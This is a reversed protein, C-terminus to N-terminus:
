KKQRIGDLIIAMIAKTQTLWEGNPKVSCLRNLAAVIVEFEVDSRISGENAAAIMLKEITEAVKSNGYKGDNLRLENLARACNSIQMATHLLVALFGLCWRDWNQDDAM